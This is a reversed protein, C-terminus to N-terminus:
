GTRVQLPSHTGRWHQDVRDICPGQRRRVSPRVSTGFGRRRHSAPSGGQPWDPVESARRQSPLSGHILTAIPTGRLRFPYEAGILLENKPAALGNWVDRAIHATSCVSACSPELM